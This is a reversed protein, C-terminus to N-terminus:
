SRWWPPDLVDIQIVGAGCGSVGGVGVGCVESMHIAGACIGVGGGVGVEWVVSSRVNEGIIRPCWLWWLDSLLLSLRDRDNDGGRVMGLWVM